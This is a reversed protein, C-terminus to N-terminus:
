IELERSRTAATRAEDLLQTVAEVDFLRDRPIRIRVSSSNKSEPESLRIWYCCNRIALVDESVSLWEAENVPLKFLILIIFGFGEWTVLKNYSEVDIDYVIHDDERKWRRTAKMQFNFTISTDGFKGGPLNKVYTIDGDSGFDVNGDSRKVKAGARSVVAYLYAYQMEQMINNVPYPM